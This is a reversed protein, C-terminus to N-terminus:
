PVLYARPSYARDVNQGAQRLLDRLAPGARFSNSPPANQAGLVLLPFQFEAGSEGCLGKVVRGHGQARFWLGEDDGFLELELGALPMSRHALALEEPLPDTMEHRPM